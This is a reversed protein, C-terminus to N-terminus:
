KGINWKSGRKGRVGYSKVTRIDQTEDRKGDVGITGMVRGIMGEM